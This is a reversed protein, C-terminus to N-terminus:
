RYSQKTAAAGAAKMLESEPVADDEAQGELKELENASDLLAQSLGEAARARSKEKQEELVRKAEDRRGGAVLARAQEMAAANEMLYATNMVEAVANKAVVEASPVFHVALRTPSAAVRKHALVDEYRVAVAGLTVTREENVVPLALECFITYEQGAAIDGVPIEYRGGGLDNYQYGHVKALAVGPELQLDVYIAKATVNTIGALEAAFINPVEQPRSIYYYNGAGGTAILRLLNDDYDTGVGMATTFIGNRQRHKALSALKETDTIGENALGDSLLIVRTVYNKKKFKRVQEYGETLGASLNTNSGPFLEDIRYKLTIKDEVSANKQVVKVDSDFAVVSIRDRPELKDIVYKAAAKVYELKGAEAMSGSRDIVLCLNVAPRDRLATAPIQAARFKLELYATATSGVLGYQNGLVPWFTLGEGSYAPAFKTAFPDQSGLAIVEGTLDRIVAVALEDVMKLAENEGAGEVKQAAVVEGTAVNIVHADLRLAAGVQAFSGAIILDAGLLKGIKQANAPDALASYNLKLEALIDDLNDRTVVKLTQSQKLDTTLMKAFTKELYDLRDVASTNVFPLVAVTAEAYTGGGTPPQALVM